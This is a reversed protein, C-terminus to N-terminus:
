VFRALRKHNHLVGKCIKWVASVCTSWRSRHWLMAKYVKWVEPPILFEASVNADKWAVVPWCAAGSVDRGHSHFGACVLGALRDENSPRVVLAVGEGGFDDGAVLAGVDRVGAALVPLLVVVHTVNILRHRTVSLDALASCPSLLTLHWWCCLSCKTEGQRNLNLKRGGYIGKTTVSLPFVASRPV